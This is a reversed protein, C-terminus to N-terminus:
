LLAGEMNLYGDVKQYIFDREVGRTKLTHCKRWGVGECIDAFEKHRTFIYGGSRLQTFMKRMREVDVVGHYVCIMDYQKTEDIEAELTCLPNGLRIITSDAEAECVIRDVGDYQCLAYINLYKQVSGSVRHMLLPAKHLNLM